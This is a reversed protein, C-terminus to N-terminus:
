LEFVYTTDGIKIGGKANIEAIAMDLGAKIDQGYGAGIGSLPATLGIKVVVKEGEAEGGCGAIGMVVLLVAAVLGVAAKWRMGM